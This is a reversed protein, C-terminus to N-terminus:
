QVHEKSAPDEPEAEAQLTAAYQKLTQIAEPTLEVNLSRALLSSGIAREWCAPRDCLYAGRGNAKGTPDIRVDQEPTRVIRTLTRKDGSTRCAICTRVPVHKPRVPRSKKKRTSPPNVTM